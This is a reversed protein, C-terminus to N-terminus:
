IQNIADIARQIDFLKRLYYERQNKLEYIMHSKTHPSLQDAVQNTEMKAKEMLIEDHEDKGYSM